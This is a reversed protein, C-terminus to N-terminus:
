KASHVPNGDLERLKKIIAIVETDKPHPEPGAYFGQQLDAIGGYFRKNRKNGDIFDIAKKKVKDTLPLANIMDAAKKNDDSTTWARNLDSPTALLFAVAFIEHVPEPM